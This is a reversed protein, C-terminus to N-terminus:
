FSVNMRRFCRMMDMKDCPHERFVAERYKARELKNLKFRYRNLWEAHRRCQQKDLCERNHQSNWPPQHKAIESIEREAIEAISAGTMDVWKIYCDGCWAEFLVKHYQNATSWRNRLNAAKGIYMVRRDPRVVFYVAPVQPLKSNFTPTIKIM